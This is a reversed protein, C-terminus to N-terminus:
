LWIQVGLAFTPLLRDQRYEPAGHSPLEDRKLVLSAGGSICLVLPGYIRFGAQLGGNLWPDFVPEPSPVGNISVRYITFGASFGLHGSLKVLPSRLFFYGILFEIPIHNINIKVNENEDIDTGSGAWGVAITAVTRKALLGRISLRPGTVLRGLSNLWYFALGVGFDNVRPYRSGDSSDDRKVGGVAPPEIIALGAGLPTREPGSELYPLILDEVMLCLTWATAAPDAAVPVERVLDDVSKPDQHDIAVLIYKASLTRLHVIWQVRCNPLGVQDKEVPGRFFEEEYLQVNAPRDDGSVPPKASKAPTPKSVQLLVRVDRQSLRLKLNDAFATAVERLTEEYKIVLCRQLPPSDPAGAAWVPSIPLTFWGILGFLLGLCLGRKGIGRIEGCAGM